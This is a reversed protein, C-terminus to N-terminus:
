GGAQKKKKKKAAQKKSKKKVTSAAEAAAETTPPGAGGGGGGGERGGSPLLAAGGRRTLCVAGAEGPAWEVLRAPAPVARGALAAKFRVKTWGNTAATQPAAEPHTCAPGGTRLLYFIRGTRAPGAPAEKAVAQAILVHAAVTPALTCTPPSSPAPHRAARAPPTATTVPGVAAPQTKKM